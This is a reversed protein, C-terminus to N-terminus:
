PFLAFLETIDKLKELEMASNNYVQRVLDRRVHFVGDITPYNLLKQLRANDFENTAVYFKLAPAHKKYTDAEEQPDRICDHRIGWKSSIVAFPEQNKFAVIDVSRRRFETLSPFVDIGLLVEMKWDYTGESFHQIAYVLAGAFAIGIPNNRQTDASYFQRMLIDVHSRVEAPDCRLGNALAQEVQLARSRWIGQVLRNGDIIRPVDYIYDLLLRYISVWVDEETSIWNKLLQYIFGLVEERTPM